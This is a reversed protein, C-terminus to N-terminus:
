RARAVELLRDLDLHAELHAALGDLTEEVQAEYALGSTQRAKLRNLFAHRFGDAAFLGHLYCGLVRGDASRAGDPRGDLELMPRALAPGATAGLHMEYGSVAQGSELELGRAEVLSKGPKLETDFELLGLGQAEDPPGEIGEPDSLRRGLM